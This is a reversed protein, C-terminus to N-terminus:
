FCPSGTSCLLSVVTTVPHVRSDIVDIARRSYITPQGNQIKHTLPIHSVQSKVYDRLEPSAELFRNGFRVYNKLLLGSLQRVDEAVQHVYSPWLSCRTCGKRVSRAM